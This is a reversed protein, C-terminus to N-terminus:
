NTNLLADKDFTANRKECIPQIKVNSRYPTIKHPIQGAARLIM